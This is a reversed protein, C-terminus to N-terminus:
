TPRSVKVHRRVTVTEVDGDLAVGEFRPGSSSGAREFGAPRGGRAEAWRYTSARSRLYERYPSAEDVPADVDASRADIEDLVTDLTRPGVRWLVREGAQLFVAPWTLRGPARDYGEARDDSGLAQGALPAAALRGTSGQM